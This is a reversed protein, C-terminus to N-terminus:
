SVGGAPETKLVQLDEVMGMPICISQNYEPEEQDGNPSGITAAIVIGDLDERVLWGRTTCVSVKPLDGVKEWGNGSNADLWTVEVFKPM